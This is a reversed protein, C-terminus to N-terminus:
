LNDIMEKVWDKLDYSGLNEIYNRAVEETLGCNEVLEADIDNVKVYNDNNEIYYELVNPQHEQIEEILETAMEPTIDMSSKLWNMVTEFTLETKPQESEIINAIASAVMDSIVKIKENEM